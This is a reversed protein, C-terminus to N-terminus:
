QKKSDTTHGEDIGENVGDLQYVPVGNTKGKVTIEGLYTASVHDKVLEYTTQSLLIQGPKANSELRASTNVTDGIATYDMRRKSGINGVVAYGTNVGIGFQVSRGFREELKIRLVEAGQKMAWATQVAKLAHNELNLPANFIAMTADGIFKDLTGGFQFISASCLELYDNLIEVVEEPQAKESMPTFGRIDVFLVSIEKRIGGLKMSDGGEKLLENVVQPAVYRGFINTVRKKEQLETLYNYAVVTIYSLITLLMPMLIELITGHKYVEKALLIYGGSFIAIIVFHIGPKFKKSVMYNGCAFLLLTLLEIGYGTRQKFQNSLMDQIINAHIEVGYMPTDKSISTKFFDQLGNDYPGILVISNKFYNTKKGYEGKLVRYYPIPTYTSSSVIFDIYSQHYRNERLKLHIKQGTSKEYQKVIQMDFSDITQNDYTFSNLTERVVGDTQDPLVNIHGATAVKELAPFPGVYEKAIIKGNNETSEDFKGYAATIFRGNKKAAQVLSHDSDPHGSAAAFLIDMGVAAAGDETLINLLKAHRSRDWPWEGLKKLSEEDIAILKINENVTKSSQYLNDQIANEGNAFIKEVKSFMSNGRYISYASIRYQMYALLFFLILLLVLLMLNKRISKM